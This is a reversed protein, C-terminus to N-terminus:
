RHFYGGFIGYFRVLVADYHHLELSIGLCIAMTKLSCYPFLIVTNDDASVHINSSNKAMIKGLMCLTLTRVHVFMQLFMHIKPNTIWKAAPRGRNWFFIRLHKYEKENRWLLM